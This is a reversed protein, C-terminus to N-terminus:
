EVAKSLVSVKGATVLPLMQLTKQPDQGTTRTDVRAIQLGLTFEALLIEEKMETPTDAPLISLLSAVVRGSDSPLVGHFCTHAARFVLTHAFRSLEMTDPV